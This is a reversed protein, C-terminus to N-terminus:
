DKWVLTSYLLFLRYLLIRARGLVEQALGRSDAKKRSVPREFKWWFPWNLVTQFTELTEKYGM